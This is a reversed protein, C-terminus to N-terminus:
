ATPRIAEEVWSRLAPAAAAGVHRAVVQGGRLVLLAPISARRFAVPAQTTM